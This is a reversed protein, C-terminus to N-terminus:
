GGQIPQLEIVHQNEDLLLEACTPVMENLGLAHTENGITVLALTGNSPAKASHQAILDRVTLKTDDPKQEEKHVLIQQM